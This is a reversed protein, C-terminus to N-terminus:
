GAVRDPAEVLGTPYEGGSESSPPMPGKIQCALLIRAVVRVTAHRRAVRLGALQQERRHSSQRAAARAGCAGTSLEASSAAFTWVRSSRRAAKVAAESKLKRVERKWAKLGVGAEVGPV